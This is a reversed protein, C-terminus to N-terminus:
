FGLFPATSPLAYTVDKMEYATLSASTVVDLHTPSHHGRHLYYIRNKKM